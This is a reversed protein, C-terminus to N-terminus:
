VSIHGIYCLLTVLEDPPLHVSTLWNHYQQNTMDQVSHAVMRSCAHLGCTKIKSVNKQHKQRNVDCKNRQVFKAFYGGDKMYSSLTHIGLNLPDYFSIKNNMHRLFTVWHRNVKRDIKASLLVLGVNFGPPIINHMRYRPTIEELDTFHVKLNSCRHQLITQIQSFDLPFDEELAIEQRLTKM